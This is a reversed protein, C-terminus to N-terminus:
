NLLTRDSWVWGRAPVLPVPPAEPQVTSAPYEPATSAVLASGQNAVAAALTAISQGAFEAPVTGPAHSVTHALEAAQRLTLDSWVWGRAPVLPVPPVEPQVTSAPYEPATVAV